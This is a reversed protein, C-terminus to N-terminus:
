RSQEVTAPDVGDQQREEQAALERAREAPDAHGHEAFRGKSAAAAGAEEEDGSPGEDPQVSAANAYPQGAREAMLRGLEDAEEPTLGEDFRKRDLEEFREADM